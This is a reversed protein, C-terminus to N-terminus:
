QIMTIDFEVVAAVTGEPRPVIEPAHCLEQFATENDHSHLVHRHVDQALAFFSFPHRQLWAQSVEPAERVVHSHQHKSVIPLPTESIQLGSPPTVTPFFAPRTHLGFEDHSSELASITAMHAEPSIYHTIM